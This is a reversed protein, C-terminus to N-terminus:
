AEQPKPGGLFAVMNAWKESDTQPKAKRKKVSRGAWQEFTRPFKKPDYHGLAANGYAAYLILEQTDAWKAAAARTIM